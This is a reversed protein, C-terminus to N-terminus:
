KNSTSGLRLNLFISASLSKTCVNVSKETITDLKQLGLAYARTFSHQPDIFPWAMTRLM